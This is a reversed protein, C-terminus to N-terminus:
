LIPWACVWAARNASRSEQHNHCLGCRASRALTPKQKTQRVGHSERERQHSPCVECCSRLSTLLPPSIPPSQCHVTFIFVRRLLRVVCGGSFGGGRLPGCAEEPFPRRPHRFHSGLKQTTPSAAINKKESGARYGCDCGTTREQRLSREFAQSDHM